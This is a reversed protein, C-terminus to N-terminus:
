LVKQCGQWLSANVQFNKSNFKIFIQFIDTLFRDNKGFMLILIFIEGINSIFNHLHLKELVLLIRFLCQNKYILATNMKQCNRM